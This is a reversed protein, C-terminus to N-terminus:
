PLLTLWISGVYVVYESETIAIIRMTLILKMAVIKTAKNWPMEIMNVCNDLQSGIPTKVTTLLLPSSIKLQTAIVLRCVFKRHKLLLKCLSVDKKPFFFGFM